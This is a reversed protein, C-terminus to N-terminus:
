KKRLEKKLEKLAKSAAKRREDMPKSLDRCEKATIEGNHLKAMLDCLKKLDDQSEPYSAIKELEKIRDNM